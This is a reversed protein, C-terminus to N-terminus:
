FLMIPGRPSVSRSFFWLSRLFYKRFLWLDKTSFNNLFFWQGYIMYKCSCTDLYRPVKLKILFEEFNSHPLYLTLITIYAFCLTTFTNRTHSVEYIKSVNNTRRLIGNQLYSALYKKKINKFIFHMLVHSPFTAFNAGKKLFLM